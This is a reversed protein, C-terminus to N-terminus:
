GRVRWRRRRPCFRGFEPRRASFGPPVPHFLKADLRFLGHNGDSRPDSGRGDEAAHDEAEPAPSLRHPHVGEGHHAHRLEPAVILLAVAGDGGVPNLRHEQGVGLGDGLHLYLFPVLDFLTVDEHGVVGGQRLQLQLALPQVHLLGVQLNPLGLLFQGPDILQFGHFAHIHFNVKRHLARIIASFQAPGVFNGIRVFLIVAAARFFRHDAPQLVASRHVVSQQPLKVILGHHVLDCVGPM